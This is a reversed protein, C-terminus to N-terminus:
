AIREFAGMRQESVTWGETRGDLAEYDTRHASMFADFDRQTRWVDLTLYDGGEGRLLETGRYGDGRSFLRAWAGDRGYTEEFRARAQERVVYRWILILGNGDRGTAPLGTM